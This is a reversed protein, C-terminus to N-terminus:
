VSEYMYYIECLVISSVILMNLNDCFQQWKASLMKLHMWKFSFSHIERLNENFNTGLIPILLIVASTWIIAQCRGPSLGNDSAIITLKRIYLHM